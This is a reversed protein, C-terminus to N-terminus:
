LRGGSFSDLNKDARINGGKNLAAFEFLSSCSLFHHIRFASHHIHLRPKRDKNMMGCEDNMMEKRDQGDKNIIKRM